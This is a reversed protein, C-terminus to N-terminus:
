PRVLWFLNLTLFELSTPINESRLGLIQYAVIRLVSLQVAEYIRSGHCVPVPFGTEFRMSGTLTFMVRINAQVWLEM